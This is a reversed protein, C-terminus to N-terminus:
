SSDSGPHVRCVDLVRWRANSRGAPTESVSEQQDKEIIRTIADYLSEIM